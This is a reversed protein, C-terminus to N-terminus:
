CGRRRGRRVVIRRTLSVGQSVAFADIAMTAELITEVQDKAFKGGVIGTDGHILAHRLDFARELSAQSNIVSGFLPADIRRGRIIEAKWADSYGMLSSRYAPREKRGSEGRRGAQRGLQRALVATPSVGLAIIARRVTREFDAAALLVAVVCENRQLYGRIAAQRQELPDSIRFM